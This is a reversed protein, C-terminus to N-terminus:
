VRRPGPLAPQCVQLPCCPSCRAAAPQAASTAPPTRRERQFADPHATGLGAAARPGWGARAPREGACCTRRRAGGTAQLFPHSPCPCALLHARWGAHRMGPLGGGAPRWGMRGWLLVHQCWLWLLVVCYFWCQFQCAGRAIYHLFSIFHRRVAPTLEEALGFDLLVLEVREAQQARQALQQAQRQAQQRAQQAHQVGQGSGGGDASGDASSGHADHAPAHTSGGSGRVLINGPHLDTHVFNDQQLLPTPSTNPSPPLNPPLCAREGGVSSRRTALGLPLAGAAANQPVHRNGLRCDTPQHPNAASHDATTLWLSPVQALVSRGAPRCGRAAAVGVRGGAQACCLAARRRVQTNHPHRSKIFHQVSRGAEFTEVLVAETCMGAAAPTHQTAPSHVLSLMPPGLSCDVTLLVWRCSLGCSRQPALPWAGELPRPVHVSSAAARFNRYFRRM